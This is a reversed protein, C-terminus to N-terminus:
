TFRPQSPSLPSLCSCRRPGSQTRIRAIRMFSKGSRTLSSASMPGDSVLFSALKALNEDEQVMQLISQGNNLLYASVYVLAKIKDPLREAAQSIVIGGMSHGVLLVPEDETVLTECVADTYKELTIEAAPTRDEGLGPLDRAVVTYGQAELKGTVKEWCWRGHWAGHVLHIKM